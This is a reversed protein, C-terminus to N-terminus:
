KAPATAKKAAKTVEDTAKKVAAQAEEGLDKGSALMLEVTEMQVKKAVEAFAAMNESTLEAQLSAFDTAAKSYDTAEAKAATLDGMKSLMDKTWRTSIEASKDAADLAVRAFKENMGASSKFADQFATMDMPFAGMMDQMVKSYDQTKAM